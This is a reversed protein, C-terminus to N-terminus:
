GGKRPAQGRGKGFIAMIMLRESTTASPKQKDGVDPQVVPSLKGRRKAVNTGTGFIQAIGIDQKERELFPVLLHEFMNDAIEGKRNVIRAATPQHQRAIRGTLPWQM